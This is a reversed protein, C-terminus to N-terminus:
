PLSLLGSDSIRNIQAARSELKHVTILQRLAEDHSLRMIRERETALYTLAEEKAVALAQTAAEKETRWLGEIEKGASLMTANVARWYSASDKGPNLTAVCQLVKFLLAQAADSGALTGFSLLISLHAFSFICVDRVIAQQYIQSSQSPLQYIPAVLLAYKKGHKWNDMAQIKFDKQNKATRSLRFAKADAVFSYDPAVVEVDAADARETLVLAKLGLQRFSVALLTDTYKSYLKEESTDHGYPEPIDGCLRLHDLLAPLGVKQM